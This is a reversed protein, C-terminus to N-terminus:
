IARFARLAMAVLSLAHPWGIRWQGSLRRGIDFGLKIGPSGALPPAIGHAFHKGDAARQRRRIDPNQCVM